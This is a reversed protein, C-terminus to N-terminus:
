GDLGDGARDILDRLRAQIDEVARLLERAEARIEQNSEVWSAEFAGAPMGFVRALRAAQRDSIRGGSLWRVVNRRQAEIQAATPEPDDLRALERALGRNTMGAQAIAERLTAKM